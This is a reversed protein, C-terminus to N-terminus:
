FGHGNRFFTYVKGRIVPISKEKTTPNYGYKDQLWDIMHTVVSPNVHSIKLDDVHWVM